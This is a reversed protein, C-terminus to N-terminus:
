SRVWDTIGGPRDILEIGDRRLEDRIADADAYRREAKAQRREEIRALV